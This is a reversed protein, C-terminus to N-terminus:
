RLPDPDPSQPPEAHILAAHSNRQAVAANIALLAPERELLAVVDRIAILPGGPLVDHIAAILDFDAQEDVCLRWDPHHLWDPASMYKVTFQPSVYLRQTAHERDEPEVALTDIADLAARSFVEVDLGRPFGSVPEGHVCDVGTELFLAIADDISSWDILPCDGTVRVVIDANTNAAAQVYRGLVDDVDGRVVLAEYNAAIECVPDDSALKTTAVVVEDVRQAQAVRMITHGLLPVGAIERLVKNPLRTSGARAQIVAVVKV